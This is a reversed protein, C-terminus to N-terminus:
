GTNIVQAVLGPKPSLTLSFPSGRDVGLFLWTMVTKGKITITLITPTFASGLDAGVTQGSPLQHSSCMKRMVKHVIDPLM